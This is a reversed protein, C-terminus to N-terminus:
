DTFNSSQQGEWIGDDPIKAGLSEAAKLVNDRQHRLSNNQLQEISSVHCLAIALTAKVSIGGSCYCPDRPCRGCSLSM